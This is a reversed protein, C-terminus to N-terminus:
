ASPNYHYQGQDEKWVTGVGEYASDDLRVGSMFMEAKILFVEGEGYAHEALSPRSAIKSMVALLLSDTSYTPLTSKFKDKIPRELRQRLNRM